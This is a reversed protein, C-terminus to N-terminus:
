ELLAESQECLYRYNTVIAQKVCNMDHNLLLVGPDKLLLVDNILLLDDTKKLLVPLWNFLIWYAMGYPMSVLVIRLITWHQERFVTLVPNDRQVGEQENAEQLQESEPMHKRFWISAIVLLLSFAFPCRWGYDLLQAPTFIWRCLAVVLSGVVSASATVHVLSGVLGKRGDPALEMSYTMAGSLQGGVSFGQLLRVLVLLVSSAWGLTKYGPLVALAATPVGMFMVSLRLAYVRGYRDGLYGFFVGGFPRAAFAGGFAAFAELMQTNASAPPFFTEAIETAFLGFLAFDFWELFNGVCGGISHSVCQCQLRETLM